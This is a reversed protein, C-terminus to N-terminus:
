VVDKTKKAIILWAIACDKNAQSKDIKDFFIMMHSYLAFFKSFLWGLIKHEYLNLKLILYKIRAQAIMAFFGGIRKCHVIEFGNDTFVKKLYYDTFRFYDLPRNHIFGFFNDTLLCHGDPKLVRNFEKIVKQPEFIDGLVGTCVISDVSSNDMPIEEVSGCIDAKVNKDCDLTLYEDFSFFQKYRSFSGSGADLVKGKIYKAHEKIIKRTLFRYPQFIYM